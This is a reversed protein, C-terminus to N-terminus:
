PIVGIVGSTVEDVINGNSRRILQLVATVSGPASGVNTSIALNESVGVPMSELAPPSNLNASVSLGDVFGELRLDFTPTGTGFNEVQVQFARARWEQPVTGAIPNLEFLAQAISTTQGGTTSVTVSKSVTREGGAADFATLTITYTGAATYTHSPEDEDSTAGDGFDWFYGVAGTSNNVMQVTLGSAPADFAAKLGGATRNRFFLFAVVAAAALALFGQQRTTTM